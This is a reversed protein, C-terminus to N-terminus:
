GAPKLSLVAHCSPVCRSVAMERAADCQMVTDSANWMGRTWVSVMCTLPKERTAMDPHCMWMM